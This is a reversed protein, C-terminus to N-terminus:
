APSAAGAPGARNLRAQRALCSARTNRRVTRQQEAWTITDQVAQWRRLPDWHRDRRAEEAAKRADATM